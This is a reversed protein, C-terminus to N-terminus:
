IISVGASADVVFLTTPAEAPQEEPATFLDSVQACFDQVHENDVLAVASGAFGGGTMRAGYCGKVNQAIEVIKDL